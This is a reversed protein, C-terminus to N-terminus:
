QAGPNIAANGSDLGYRACYRRMNDLAPGYSRDARLAAKYSQYAAHPRGSEERLAGLLNHAEASGPDLDIARQLLREAEPFDFLHIALKARALDGSSPRFSEARAPPVPPPGPEDHRAVVRAVVDRLAAPTVPKPLYDAVGLRMARVANPVSGHATVIVVPVDNGSDRLCELVRMGDLVPMRLDLLVLDAPFGALWLLGKEGDEAEAVLYGDSELATRFVLRVGPEDDVVLIRGRLNAPSPDRERDASRPAAGEVRWTTTLM